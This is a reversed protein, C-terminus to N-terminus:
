LDCNEFDLDGELIKRLNVVLSLGGVSCGFNAFEAIM